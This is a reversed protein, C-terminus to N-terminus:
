TCASATSTSRATPARLRYPRRQAAIDRSRGWAGQRAPRRREAPQGGGTPHAAILKAREWAPYLAKIRPDDALKPDEALLPAAQFITPTRRVGSHVFLSIVDEYGAGAPSITRSYGFRSTAGLHEMGDLGFTAAPYHYHSTTPM